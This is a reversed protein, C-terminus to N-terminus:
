RPSTSKLQSFPQWKSVTIQQIESKSSPIPLGKTMCANGTQSTQLQVPLPIFMEEQLLCIIIIIIISYTVKIQGYFDSFSCWNWCWSICYLHWQQWGHLMKRSFIPAWKLQRWHGVDATIPIWGVESCCDTMIVNRNSFQLTEEEVSCLSLCAIVTGEVVIAFCQNHWSCLCIACLM